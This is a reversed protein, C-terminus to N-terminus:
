YRNSTPVTDDRLVMKGGRGNGEITLNDLQVRLSHLKPMIREDTTLTERRFHSSIDSAETSESSTGSVGLLGLGSINFESSQSSKFSSGTVSAEFIEKAHNKISSSMQGPVMAVCAYLPAVEDLNKIQKALAGYSDNGGWRANAMKLSRSLNSLQDYAERGQAVERKPDFLTSVAGDVLSQARNRFEDLAERSLPTTSVFDVLDAGAGPRTLGTNDAVTFSALHEPSTPLTQKDQVIQGENALDLVQHQDKWFWAGTTKTSQEWEKVKQTIQFTKETGQAHGLGAIAQRIDHLGPMVREDATMSEAKGESKVSSSGVSTSKSQGYGLTLLRLTEKEVSAQSVTTSQASWQLSQKITDKLSASLPGPVMAVSGFLPLVDSMKQTIAQLRALEPNTDHRVSSLNNYGLGIDVSVERYGNNLAKGDPLMSATAGVQKRSGEQHGGAATVASSFQSYLDKCEDSYRGGYVRLARELDTLKDYAEKGEKVEREPHFFTDIAGDVTQLARDRFQNVTERTMPANRAMDTLSSYNPKIM